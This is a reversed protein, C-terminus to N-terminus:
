SRLHALIDNVSWSKGETKFQLRAEELGRTAHAIHEPTEALICLYKETEAPTAKM